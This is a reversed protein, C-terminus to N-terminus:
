KQIKLQGTQNFPLNVTQLLPHDSGFDVAGNFQYDITTNGSVIQYVSQGMQLFNLSIPISIVSNDNPQMKQKNQSLGSIWENGNVTFQYNLKDAAIAIPNPNEVQLQLEL